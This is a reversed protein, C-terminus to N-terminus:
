RIIIPMKLSRSPGMVPNELDRCKKFDFIESISNSSCVLLFGYRVYAINPTRSQGRFARFADRRKDAIVSNRTVNHILNLEFL